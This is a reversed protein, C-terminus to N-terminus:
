LDPHCRQNYLQNNQGYPSQPYSNGTNNGNSYLQTNSAYQAMNEMAPSQQAYQPQSQGGASPAYGIPPLQPGGMTPPPGIPTRMHGYVPQDSANQQEATRNDNQQRQREEDAKRQAEEEKKKAKWEKRIEKFETILLITLRVIDFM